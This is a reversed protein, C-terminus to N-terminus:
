CYTSMLMYVFGETNLLTKICAEHKNLKYQCIKKKLQHSKFGWYTVFRHAIKIFSAMISYLFVSIKNSTQKFKVTCIFIVTCTCIVSSYYEATYM